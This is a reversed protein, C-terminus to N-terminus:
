PPGMVVMGGNHQGLHRPLAQIVGAAGGEVWGCASLSSHVEVATGRILGLTRLGRTIQHSTISL